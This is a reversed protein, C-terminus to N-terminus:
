TQMPKEQTIHTPNLLILPKSLFLLIAVALGAGRLVAGALALDGVFHLFLWKRHFFPGTVVPEQGRWRPPVRRMIVKEERPM